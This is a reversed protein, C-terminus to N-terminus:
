KLLVPTGDVKIRMLLYPKQRLDKGDHFRKMRDLQNATFYLHGDAALSLTDPWILHPSTAVLEVTGDTKLRQIANHEYDTCYVRGQADSELGDSAGKEGHDQVTKAVDAPSMKEDALADTSVSFLHRGCLPCYYLRKGDHSIAIGDSGMKLPKVTGPEPRDYLPRSEVIPLFGPEAKTSPPREAEALEM